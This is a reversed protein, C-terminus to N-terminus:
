NGLIWGSAELSSLYQYTLPAKAKFNNTRAENEKHSIYYDFAEAFFEQCNTRAYGRTLKVIGESEVKYLSNLESELNNIYSVFHGFEHILSNPSILYIHRNGSSFIGVAAVNYRDNYNNIYTQGIELTYKEANFAELINDPIMDLETLYSDLDLTSSEYNISIDDFVDPIPLSKINAYTLAQYIANVAEGRTLFATEPNDIFGLTYAYQVEKNYKSVESNYIDGTFTRIGSLLLIDRCIDRLYLKSSASNLMIYTKSGSIGIEKGEDILAKEFTYNDNNIKALKDKFGDPDAISYVLSYFEGSTIDRDPEFKNNGVGNIKGSLALSQIAEYYPNVKDVDKFIPESKYLDMSYLQSKFEDVTDHYVGIYEIDNFRTNEAAYGITATTVMSICVVTAVLGRVIGRYIGMCKVGM